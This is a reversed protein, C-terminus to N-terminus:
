TPPTAGTRPAETTVDRASRLDLDIVRVALMKEINELAVAIREFAEFYPPSVDSAPSRRNYRRQEGSARRERRPGPVPGEEAQENM